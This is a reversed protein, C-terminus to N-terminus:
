LSAPGTHFIRSQAALTCCGSRSASMPTTVSEAVSPETTLFSKRGFLASQVCAGGSVGVAPAFFIGSDSGAEILGRRDGIDNRDYLSKAWRLQAARRGSHQLNCRSSEAARSRPHLTVTWLEQGSSGGTALADRLGVRSGPGFLPHHDGIAEASIPLIFNEAVLRKIDQQTTTCNGM